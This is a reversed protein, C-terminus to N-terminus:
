LFSLCTLVGNGKGKGKHSLTNCPTTVLALYNMITSISLPLHCTDSSPSACCLSANKVVYPCTSLRHGGQAEVEVWKHILFCTLSPLSASATSSEPSGLVRRYRELDVVVCAYPNLTYAQLGSDGWDSFPPFTCGNCRVRGALFHM